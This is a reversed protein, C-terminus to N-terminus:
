GKQWRVMFRETTELVGRYLKGAMNAAATWAATEVGFALPTHVMSGETARFVKLTKLLADAELRRSGVRDGGATTAFMVRSPLRGEHQRVVAGSFLLTREPITTEISECRTKKPAKAYSLTM